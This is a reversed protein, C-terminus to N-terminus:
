AGEKTMDETTLKGEEEVGHPWHITVRGQTVTGDTHREAMRVLNKQVMRCGKNFYFAPSLWRHTAKGLEWSLIVLFAFLGFGLDM